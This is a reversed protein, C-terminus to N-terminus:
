AGSYLETYSFQAGLNANEVKAALTSGDVFEGEAAVKDGILVLLKGAFGEFGSADAGVLIDGLGGALIREVQPNADM